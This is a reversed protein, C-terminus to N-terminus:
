AGLIRMCKMAPEIRGCSAAPGVALFIHVSVVGSEVNM